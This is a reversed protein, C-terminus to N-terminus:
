FSERFLHRPWRHDGVFNELSHRTVGSRELVQDLNHQISDLGAEVGRGGHNGPHIVVLSIGLQQCRILEQSFANISKDAKEPDDNALNILYSAHSAVPMNGLEQWRHRFLDIDQPSLAKAKWQRQNATFIQLSAGGVQEIHDFAKHLGGAISEHAGFLPM